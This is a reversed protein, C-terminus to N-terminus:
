KKLSGPRTFGRTDSMKDFDAQRRALRREAKTRTTRKRPKSTDKRGKTM